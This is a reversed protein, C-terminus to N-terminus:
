RTKLRPLLALANDHGILQRDAASFGVRMMGEATEALPVFPNDSGFLIHTTPVLSTLAAIAPDPQADLEAVAPADVSADAPRRATAVEDDPPTYVARRPPTGCGFVLLLGLGLLKTMVSIIGRSGRAHDADICPTLPPTTDLVRRATYLVGGTAPILGEVM